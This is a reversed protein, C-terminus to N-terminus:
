ILKQNLWDVVANISDLKAAEEDVIEVDYEEQLNLFFLSLDLSDLELDRRLSANFDVVALDSIEKKLIDLIVSSTITHQINM